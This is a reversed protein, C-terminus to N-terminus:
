HKIFAYHADRVAEDTALLRREGVGSDTIPASYLRNAARWYIIGGEILLVESDGQNTAIQFTKETDVDYVGLKGPMVLTADKLREALDPGFERRGPKWEEAGASRPNLATKQQHETVVIYRGFGRLDAAEDCRLVRWTRDRKRFLVVSHAGAKWNSLYLALVYRDNILLDAAYLGSRLDAPVQYGIAIPEPVKGFEVKGTAMVNGDGDM